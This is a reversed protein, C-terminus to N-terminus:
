KCIFFLPRGEDVSTISQGSIQTMTSCNSVLDDLESDSGELDDEFVDNQVEGIISELGSTVIESNLCVFM